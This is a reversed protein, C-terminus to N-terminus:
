RKGGKQRDFELRFSVYQGDDELVVTADYTKGTKESYCGTLRARGDKLLAAVVVKTPQKKKAAWWKNNKWIAFRCAENQCFFGKQMEAVEGGCRPCRGVVERPPSFLYETGKIVQYTGVLERLMASIGAMFDEPPLEGCEIEGLRYEWEATLLPSQLQEPLVTILSVADHSPMLQVIKKSKKRELFGASVLKELIGARTAPTGLGKREADEPMDEKGATEMASLLTDETFHKPPSTKGEKVVTGSLPLSQGETLEPLAKSETEKDPEPTNKLNACYAADLARWGPHKVTRGKASFEVGACEVTVSTEAYTHPQAVACLLRLAVLELVAREGVPLGSLDANQINRTPIVAHHDTVKKDNIVADADCSIAIGKRFTMANAVLNVLVPLGEAMDSTLYRSDTRPYTCLKKEYLNQLYDLTQQATYGLLRNADRQLTTLDYLAPPKESKDKREVQKVTAVASQCASQLQEAAAKDKMREGAVTFGPLELTVTYFPVPKFGDIEAERQVILALTPSMVRGINLTRHYLVSFLRTANIGVLWDAKARCLAADRLGDYEAGPRLNAFGERIASDEMSSIWLRKMPKQCGALEYVSRFILEGERGADCANVVETVDPANMLKKLVDFQKKKDKGVTMQWDVPLIPLDDYRWKAYKPDYSDADALGALHGVCWSVRWGNGELYGDKRATAGIVAALSHAVSPKEAIVLKHNM